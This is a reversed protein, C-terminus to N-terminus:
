PSTMLFDSLYPFLLVGTSSQLINLRCCIFMRSKALHNTLYFLNIRFSALNTIWSHFSYVLGLSRKVLRM